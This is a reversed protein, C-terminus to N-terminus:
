DPKLAPRAFYSLHANFTALIEEKTMKQKTIFWRCDDRCKCKVVCGSGEGMYEVTAVHAEDVTSMEIIRHPPMGESVVSFEVQKLEAMGVKKWGDHGTSNQHGRLDGYTTFELGCGFDNCRYTM